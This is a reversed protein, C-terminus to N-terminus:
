LDLALKLHVHKIQSTVENQYIEDENDEDTGDQNASDFREAQHLSRDIQFAFVSLTGTRSLKGQYNPESANTFIRNKSNQELM